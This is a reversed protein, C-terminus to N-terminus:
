QEIVFHFAKKETGSQVNLIYMGNALANSLMITEDLRGAVATVKNRYIVQGLLDTVELTVLEDAVSGVTGRVSFTGKNPNPLVNLLVPLASVTVDTVNKSVAGDDSRIEHTIIVSGPMIGTVVGNGDVTAVGNDSSSWIGNTVDDALSVESGAYITATTHAAAAASFTKTVKTTCGSLTVAYTIVSSGTTTHATAGIPSGTSGSLTIVSTNSSTWVGGATADSITVPSGIHSISAPGNIATVLPMASVTVVQTTICTGAASTKFTITATGASMGSIDPGSAIAVATNSSTWSSVPSADSLLTVLGVCLNFNGQIPQVSYITNIMIATCGSGTTYTVNATGSVGGAVLTATSGAGTITADGTVSWTGGATADSLTVTIGQCESTAGLIASPKANVTLVATASCGGSTYSITATGAYAASATVVGTSGVVTAIISTMSWTGGASADSLTTTSGECIFLNGNIAASTSNVTVVLTGTCGGATTYTIMATGGAAGTVLGAANITAIGPSGSNWTGGTVADHLTTTGGICMTATGSIMPVTSVTVITKAICGAAGSASYTIAATGGSAATVIGSTLGVTAITTNSSSWTGTGDTLSVMTGPCLVGTNGAITAPQASVTVTQTTICYGAAGSKFTIIATGASMGTIDAGSAVAVATNSSTWSTGASADSLITVGGVCVNFIGAIPLPGAYITNTITTYCGAGLTYTVIATGGSAGAVLTGSTGTGSVTAGGSGSWVGGGSVDSITITAGACEASAGQIPTPNANVTLTATAFASGITYTVTATGTYGGSATVMGTSGNITAVLSSMSWTGGAMADTLTTTGGSCISANGNIPPISLSSVTVIKTVYTTGCSGTVAYSIVVTGATVGTVIGGSVSANTNSASWVGGATTDTLTINSGTTVSSPGNIAGVSPANNVIVTTGASMSSCGNANTVTVSYTGATTVNLTSTAASGPSWSYVSYNIPATSPVVWAPGYILTGDNGNGTVDSTTSGTGEDFTYYAVLGSSFTNVGMNMNGSIQGASRATNWIRVEDLTGQYPQGFTSSYGISMPEDVSALNPTTSASGDAVGNVYLICSTGDWTAAVHTWTNAPIIVSGLTKLFSASVGAGSPWVEAGLMNNSIYLNYDGSKRIISNVNPSGGYYVWAELTYGSISLNVISSTNNIAIFQSYGDFNLADGAGNTSLAVSGGSCFTTAGGAIIIPNPTPSVDVTVVAMSSCVGNSGTVTYITTATPNAITSNCTACSLGTSPSWSYTSGGTASLTTSVGSCIVVNSGTTIIPAVSVTVTLTVFNGSIGTGAAGSYTIVATGGAVGTVIGTSGITAVSTNSSSWSGGTSAESLVVPTGTCVITTGSIASLPDNRLITFSYTSSIAASIDPKGDGDIDCVFADIIGYGAFFDVNTSFAISGVTSTNRLISVTGDAENATVVDPKGDGNIDGAVLSNPYAGSPFDVHLAFSGSNISGPSSTNLLASVNNDGTNAVIVDLKGDGDLDAIAVSRPASGTSFDVHTALSSSNIIGATSTNRLVSVTSSGANATVVDPKGDGDIDGLAVSFPTTGTNFDVHPAFSINGISGTNQLVSIGTSIDATIIEPKGDGDIDGITLGIPNANTNFTVGTAFSLTGITSTNRYVTVTWDGQNTIVIDQKGDGDIDGIAIGHALYGAPLGIKTSFSGPAISGSNNTNLYVSVTSTGANVIAVDTKGDGDIDGIAMASPQTSDYFSVPAEVNVTGPAYLSNNYTSLFPMDSYSMLGCGETTVTVPAFTAGLPVSVTLSTASAATVSAQTAGFYVIDSAATANFGTGTLTVSSSPIGVSPSVSLVMPLGSVSITNSVSSCGSTNTVIVSYSGTALATLTDTTVGPSFITIQHSNIDTAYINGGNDVCIHWGEIYGTGAAIGAVTLGNTASTSGRPFKQIRFNSQDSVYISGANDVYVGTVASFLEATSLLDVIFHWRDELVRM